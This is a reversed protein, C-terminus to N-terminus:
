GCLSPRQAQDQGRKHEDAKHLSSQSRPSLRYWRVFSRVYCRVFGRRRYHHKRVTETISQEPRKRSILRISPANMSNWILPFAVPNSIRKGIEQCEARAQIFANNGTIAARTPNNAAGSSARSPARIPQYLLVVTISQLPTSDCRVVADRNTRATLPQIFLSNPRWVAM